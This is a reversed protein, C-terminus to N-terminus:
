LSSAFSAAELCPHLAHSKSEDIRRISFSTPDPVPYIALNTSLIITQSKREIM